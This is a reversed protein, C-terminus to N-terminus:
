RERGRQSGKLFSLRQSNFYIIMNFSGLLKLLLSISMFLLSNM